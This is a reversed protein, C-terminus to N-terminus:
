VEEEPRYATQVVMPKRGRRVLTVRGPPQQSLFIGPYLQGEQRDGSLLLATAGSEKLGQLVPEYLARSVGGSRRAVVLHGM